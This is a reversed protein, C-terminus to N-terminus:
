VHVQPARDAHQPNRASKGFKLHEDAVPGRLAKTDEPYSM